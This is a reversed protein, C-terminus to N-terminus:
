RAELPAHVHVPQDLVRGRALTVVRQARRAVRPDHTVMVVTRGRTREMVGDLLRDATVADLGVTPEDLVLIPADRLLARAVGIRAQQGGSLRRGRQGIVADLGGDLRAVFDDAGAARLADWMRADPADRRGLALNSRITGELLPADQMALASVGRLWGLDLRRLDVGDLSATGREPDVLRLLVAVLTSKGSGSEGMVAITEGAAVSLSV